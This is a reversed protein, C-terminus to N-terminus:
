VHWDPDRPVDPKPCTASSLLSLFAYALTNMTTESPFALCPLTFLKTSAHKFLELPTQAM